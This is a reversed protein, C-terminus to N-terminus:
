ALATLTMDIEVDWVAGLVKRGFDEVQRDIVVGDRTVLERRQWDFNADQERFSAHARLVDGRTIELATVAVTAEDTDNSVRVTTIQDDTMGAVMRWIQTIGEPTLM